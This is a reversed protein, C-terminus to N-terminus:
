VNLPAHYINYFQTPTLRRRWALRGHLGRIGSLNNSQIFKHLENEVCSRARAIRNLRAAHDAKREAEIRDHETFDM